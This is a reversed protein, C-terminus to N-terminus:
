AHRASIPSLIIRSIHSQFPLTAPSLSPVLPTGSLSLTARAVLYFSFGFSFLRPVFSLSLFCWFGRKGWIAMNGFFM